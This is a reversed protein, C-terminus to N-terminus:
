SCVDYYLDIHVWHVKLTTNLLVLHQGVFTNKMLVEDISSKKSNPRLFYWRRYVYEYFFHAHKHSCGIHLGRHGFVVGMGVLFFFFSFFISVTEKWYVHQTRKRSYWGLSSIFIMGNSRSTYVPDSHEVTYVTNYGFIKTLKQLLPQKAGSNLYSRSQKVATCIFKVHM